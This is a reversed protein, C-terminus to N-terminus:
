KNLIHSFTEDFNNPNEPLEAILDKPLSIIQLELWGKRFELMSITKEYTGNGNFPTFESIQEETKFLSYELWKQLEQQNDM